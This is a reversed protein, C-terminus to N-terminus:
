CFDLGKGTVKSKGFYEIAKAIFECGEKGYNLEQILAVDGDVFFSAFYKSFNEPTVKKKSIDCNKIFDEYLLKVATQVSEHTHGLHRLESVLKCYGHMTGIFMITETEEMALLNNHKQIEETTWEEASKKVLLEATEAYTAIRSDSYLNWEKKVYSSFDEFKINGMEVAIPIRGTMKITKAFDLAETYEKKKKELKPIKKSLLGYFDFSSDTMFAKIKNATFGMNILTKIAWLKELDRESYERYNNRTNVRGVDNLLGKKRYNKIMDHNIGMNEEIWKPKYFM